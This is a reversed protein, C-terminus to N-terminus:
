PRKHTIFWEYLDPREYSRTWSDHGADPYVTFRVQGGADRIRRVMHISHEVPVVDDMAGHFCWVPTHRLRVPDISAYPGCVPAIAAFREPYEGALVWTGFGGMSLGTVYVRKPDIDHHELVHDVLAMLSDAHWSAEQPCQPALVILPLEMGAEVVRPPGHTKVLTLDNGREGSGHLFLLLPLGGLTIGPKEKPLYLLYDMGVERTVRGAFHQRLERM